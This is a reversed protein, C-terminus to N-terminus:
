QNSHPIEDEPRSEDRNKRRTEAKQTVPGPFAAPQLESRICKSTCWGQSSRLDQAMLGQDRAM